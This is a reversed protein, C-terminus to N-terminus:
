GSVTVATVKIIKYDDTFLLLINTPFNLEVYLVHNYTIISNNFYEIFEDLQRPYHRHSTQKCIM